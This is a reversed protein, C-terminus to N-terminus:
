NIVQGQMNMIVVTSTKNCVIFQEPNKPLLAITQIALDGGANGGLSKYTAICESSKMSWVKVTGDCSASLIHHNDAAFIAENVFSTHGRFEKLTKGSKLGNIRVTMDFSTTLLQSNDKSFQISTVGKSHAKEFKRLCQGTQIKWVKLKGDQSGSALMESDRSFSLCVIAEEMMMFNDQTFNDNILYNYIM